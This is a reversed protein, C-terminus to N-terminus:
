GAKVDIRKGRGADNAIKPLTIKLVGKRFKAEARDVDVEAPLPVTRVFSGYVRESHYWGGEETEHEERKEGRIILTDDEIRVDIDEEDVGPLEATVIVAKAKERVDVSPLFDGKMDRRHALLGPTEDFVSSFFDDFMRNFERQLLTFPSDDDEVGRRQIPRRDRWSRRVPILDRIAM